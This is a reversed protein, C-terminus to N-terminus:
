SEEDQYPVLDIIHLKHVNDHLLINYIIDDHQTIHSNFTMLSTIVHTPMAGIQWLMLQMVMLLPFHSHFISHDYMKQALMNVM